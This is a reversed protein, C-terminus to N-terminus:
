KYPYIEAWTSSRWENQIARLTDVATKRAIEDEVLPTHQFYHILARMRRLAYAKAMAPGLRVWLRKKWEVPAYHSNVIFDTDRHKSEVLISTVKSTYGLIFRFLLILFGVMILLYVFLM